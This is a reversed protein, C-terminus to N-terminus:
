GAHVMASDPAGAEAVLERLVGRAILYGRVLAVIGPDKRDLQLRNRGQKASLEVKLPLRRGVIKLYLKVAVPSGAATAAVLIERLAEDGRIDRRARSLDIESESPTRVTLRHIEVALLRGDHPVLATALDRFPSLDYIRAATFHEPDDALVRGLARRLIEKIAPHPAHLALRGTELDVEASARETNIDTAPTVAFTDADLKDRTKPRRCYEVELVLRRAERAVHVLCHRTRDLREFEIGCLGELKKRDADTFRFSRASAPDYETFSDIGDPAESPLLAYARRALDPHDLIATLALNEDGLAARPLRRETDLSILREAGRTTALADLLPLWERAAPPLLASADSPATLIQFLRHVFTRDGPASATFAALPFGHAACFDAAHTSLFRALLPRSLRELLVRRLSGCASVLPAPAPSSLASM